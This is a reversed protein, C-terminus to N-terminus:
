WINGTIFEDWSFKSSLPSTEMYLHWELAVFRRLDDPTSEELNQRDSEHWPSFQKTWSQKAALKSSGPNYFYCIHYIQHFDGAQNNLKIKIVNHWYNWIQLNNLVIKVTSYRDCKCYKTNKSSEIYCHVTSYHMYRHLKKYSLSKSRLKFCLLIFTLFSELCANGNRFIILGYM